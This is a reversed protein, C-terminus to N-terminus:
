PAPGFLAWAVFGRRSSPVFPLFAERAHRRLPSSPTVPLAGFSILDGDAVFARTEVVTRVFSGNVLDPSGQNKTVWAFL